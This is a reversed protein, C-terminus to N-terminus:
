NQKPFLTSKWTQWQQCETLLAKDMFLAAPDWYGPQAMFGVRSCTAWPTPSGLSDLWALPILKLWPKSFCFTKGVGVRSGWRLQCHFIGCDGQRQEFVALLWSAWSFMSVPCVKNGCVLLSSFLFPYKVVLWLNKFTGHEVKLCLLLRTAWHHDSDIKKESM